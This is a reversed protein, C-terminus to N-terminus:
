FNDKKHISQCEPTPENSKVKEESTVSDTIIKERNKNKEKDVIEAAYTEVFGCKSCIKLYYLGLNISIKHKKEPYIVTKVYYDTSGCKLCRADLKM